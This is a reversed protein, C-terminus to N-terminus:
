EQRPLSMPSAFGWHLNPRNRNRVNERQAGSLANTWRTQAHQRAAEDPVRSASGDLNRRMKGRALAYLYAGQTTWRHLAMGITKRDNTEGESRLVEQIHRSIGIALPVPRRFAAPWRRHWDSLIPEVVAAVVPAVGPGQCGTPNRDEVVTM